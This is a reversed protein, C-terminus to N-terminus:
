WHRSTSGFSRRRGRSVPRPTRAPETWGRELLARGGPVNGKQAQDASSQLDFQWLDFIAQPLM